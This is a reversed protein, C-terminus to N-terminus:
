FHYGLVLTFWHATYNQPDMGLFITDGTNPNPFNFPLLGDFRFDSQEWQEWSYMVKASFNKTIWYRLFANVQNLTTEIEPFNAAVASASGTGVPTLPNSANM